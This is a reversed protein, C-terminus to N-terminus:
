YFRLGLEDFLFYYKFLMVDEWDYGTLAGRHGADSILYLQYLSKPDGNEQLAALFKYSHFPPVRDDKDGTILLVNPYRVSKEINQLPSYSKLNVFDLSDSVSGFENLNTNVSGVTYNEFRLMDFVGAEAIAAKFLEPRQTITAGVVLGGHSGGNIALKEANTYGEDILYEAASIFDDIANQKNLKRGAKAWETGEAGGGRINPIALIGGHLLWLMKSENFYPEVTTGYGGYGYLLTPNKGNLKTEKLCTIYMPIETGDKSRYQVYRTELSEADYPVSVTEIPKFTFDKLSLQYWLNPHFFSSISFNTYEAEDNKEYFYKVKKGEPFDIKRLLEGAQNFILVLYRGDNRYICAMKDKGLQSVNRLTVDYEPIFEVVKNLANINAMLVKGNPANWNTRLIISDGFLEEIWIDISENNPYILFNKLQFFEPKITTISIAKYVTGKIEKFHHLILKDDLKSFSFSSSGTTDPNQYLMLDTSQKTGLKHYNLKQGTAKDLLERGEKPKNHGEYYIDKGQWMLTSGTRLYKLTDPLQEGSKLDFFFVNSWDSGNRSIGIATINEEENVLNSTIIINDDKELRFKKTDVLTIFNGKDNLRYRLNPTRNYGIYDYEFEYKNESKKNSKDFGDLTDEKVAYYLSAIQARLTRKRTQNNETKKSIKKQLELWEALRPDNPNEMWQYPDQIQTNFYVDMTSDRAAVPYKYAKQAYSSSLSFIFLIPLLHKYM